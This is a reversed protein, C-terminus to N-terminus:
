FSVLIKVVTGQEVTEGASPVQQRVKNGFFSTADVQLGAAQLIATAEDAKKGTVDPVQVLPLGASVQIKVTSGYPAAAGPAPDLAMVEGTGVAASRGDEVREVTFGHDDRLNRCPLEGAEGSHDLPGM